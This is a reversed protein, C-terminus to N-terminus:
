FHDPLDFFGAGSRKVRSIRNPTGSCGIRAPCIAGADSRRPSAYLTSGQARGLHRGPQLASHDRLGPQHCDRRRGPLSERKKKDDVTRLAEVLVSDYRASSYSSWNSAGLGQDKDTTALVGRLSSSPEGGGVGWGLLGFGLEKKSAKPIYSAMPQTQVKTAIGGRTLMQGIAQVVQEDNIFRDSPGFLTIGFGDPYGAEALLKRAGAVDLPEPKLRPNHGFMGPPAPNANPM